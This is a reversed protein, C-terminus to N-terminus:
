HHTQLWDLAREAAELATRGRFAEGAASPRGVPVRVAQWGGQPDQAIKLRFGAARFHDRIGALRMGEATPGEPGGAAREAWARVDSWRWVTSRGLRGVPAPFGPAEVAREARTRSLHLRRAIHARTVLDQLGDPHVSM